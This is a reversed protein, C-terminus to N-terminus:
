VSKGEVEVVSPGGDADHANKRMTLSTNRSDPLVKAEIEEAATEREGAEVEDVGGFIKNM